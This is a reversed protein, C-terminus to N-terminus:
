KESEALELCSQITWPDLRLGIKTDKIRFLLDVGDVLELIQGEKVTIGDSYDKQNRKRRYDMKFSKIVIYEDM